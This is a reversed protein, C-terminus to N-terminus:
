VKAPNYLGFDHMDIHYSNKPEKKILFMSMTHSTGGEKLREKDGFTFAIMYDADRAVLLNRAYFGESVTFEAGEEIAIQIEKLSRESEQYSVDSFLKHYHNATDAVKKNGGYGFTTWDTPFHLTLEKAEGRLFLSVAIHDSWAAGGSVVAYQEHPVLLSNIINRASARMIFFTEDDMRNLDEGRGATGIIGFTKM